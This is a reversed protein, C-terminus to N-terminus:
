EAPFLSERNQPVNPVAGKSHHVAKKSSRRPPICPSIGQQALMKRTKDNDYGKNGIVATAPSLDKLVMDVDTADSWQRESLHLRCPVVKAPASGMSNVVPGAGQSTRGIM